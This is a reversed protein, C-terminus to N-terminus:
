KLLAHLTHYAGRPEDLAYEEVFRVKIGKKSLKLALRRLYNYSGRAIGIKKDTDQCFAEVKVGFRKADQAENQRLAGNLFRDMKITHLNVRNCIQIERRRLTDM